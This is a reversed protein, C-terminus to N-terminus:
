LFFVEKEAEEIKPLYYKYKDIVFQDSFPKERDMESTYTLLFLLDGREFPIGQKEWKDRYGYAKDGHSTVIGGCWMDVATKGFVKKWFANLMAECYKYQNLRFNQYGILKFVETWVLENPEESYFSQTNHNIPIFRVYKSNYFLIGKETKFVTVWYGSDTLLNGSECIYWDNVAMKENLTEFFNLEKSAGLDEIRKTTEMNFNFYSILEKYM